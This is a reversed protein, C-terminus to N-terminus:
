VVCIYLEICHTQCTCMRVYFCLCMCVCECMFVCMKNPASNCRPPSVGTLLIHSDVHATGLGVWDALSRVMTLLIWLRYKSLSSSCCQREANEDSSFCCPHTIDNLLKSVKMKYSPFKWGLPHKSKLTQPPVFCFLRVADIELLVTQCIKNIKGLLFISM